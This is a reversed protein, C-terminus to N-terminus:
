QFRASPNRTNMAPRTQYAMRLSDVATVGNRWVGNMRAAKDDSVIRPYAMRIVDVPTISASLNTRLDGTGRKESNRETENTM